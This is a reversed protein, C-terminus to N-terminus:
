WDCAADARTEDAPRPRQPHAAHTDQRIATSLPPSYSPTGILIAQETNLKLLDLPTHVTMHAMLGLGAQGCFLGIYALYGGIVPIPLYAVLTGLKLYGTLMLSLGLCTTALALTCLTTALVQRSPWTPETPTSYIGERTRASACQWDSAGVEKGLPSALRRGEM